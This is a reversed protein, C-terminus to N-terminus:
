GKDRGGGGGSFLSRDLGQVCHVTFLNANCKIIKLMLPCDFGMVYIIGTSCHEHCQFRIKDPRWWVNYTVGRTLDHLWIGRAWRCWSTSTWTVSGLEELEEADVHLHEPWPVLNRSSRQMLTYINLDRFWTGRAWRRWSASTWTVSGLEELEEADVQLHEPWPVLNRSSM